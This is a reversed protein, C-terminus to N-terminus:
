ACCKSCARSLLSPIASAGVLNNCFVAMEQNQPGLVCLLNLFCITGLRFSKCHSGQRNGHSLSMPSRSIHQSCFPRYGHKGSQWSFKKKKQLCGFYLKLVFVIFIRWSRTESFNSGLDSPILISWHPPQWFSGANELGLWLLFPPKKEKIYKLM